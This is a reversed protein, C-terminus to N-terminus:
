QNLAIVLADVRGGNERIYNEFLRTLFPSVWFGVVQADRVRFGKGNPVLLWRVDYYTGSTLHVRSDVVVHAGNRVSPNNFEARAVPYKEGETSAYRAIFKILGQYYSQRSQPRLGQRYSGLADMGIAPVHGYRGIVRSFADPTGKRQADILENAVRQMFAAAADQRQATAPALTSSTFVFVLAAMVTATLVNTSLITRSRM